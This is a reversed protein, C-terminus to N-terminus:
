PIPILLPQKIISNDVLMQVSTYIYLYCIYISKRHRHAWPFCGNGDRVRHNLSSRGITSHQLRCPLTPPQRFCLFRLFELRLSPPKLNKTRVRVYSLTLALFYNVFIFFVSLICLGKLQHNSKTFLLKRILHSSWNFSAFAPHDITGQFSCM